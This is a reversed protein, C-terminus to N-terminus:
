SFLIWALVYGVGWAGAVIAIMTLVFKWFNKKQM